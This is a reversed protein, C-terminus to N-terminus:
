DYLKDKIVFAETLADLCDLYQDKKMDVANKKMMLYCEIDAKWGEPLKKGEEKMQLLKRLGEITLLRM